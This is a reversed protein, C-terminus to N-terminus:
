ADWLSTRDSTAYMKEIEDKYKKEVAHRKVKMTPGLEGGAISFDRPLLTFKRIKAAKSSSEMNVKEMVSLIADYVGDYKDKHKALDTVSSPRSGQDMCFEWACAELQDTIELTSPDLVARVTILCALHKQKDGVVMCHSVLDPLLSKIREEIPYPAINKGGSTIIVDKIRGKISVFGDEITAMDGSLLWFGRDFTERTKAPDSLYGMFVNRGNAAVEGIGDVPDQLHLRTLCGTASRGVSGLRVSAGGGPSPHFYNATHNPNETMGYIESVVLGISKLFQMTDTSIPAAGSYLGGLCRDLGLKAHIKSIVLKEAISYKIGLGNGGALISDFHDTAVSRSWQLLRGKPGTAQSFTSELQSHMKEFVRPVAVFRTPRVETLYRLLSGRLADKDACHITGGISPMMWIDAIQAVIHSLPLYSIMTEEGFKLNYTQVASACVWTLNDQSLLAGKPDATTGSTYCIVAPQNIAQGELRGRLENEDVSAGLDLLEKWSLVGDDSPLDGYMVITRLDPLKDRYPLIKRLQMEDEVVVINVKSHKLQYLVSEHSNTTYVGTALGGAFVAGITSMFWEPSNNGMIAVSKHPELGLEIFARAVCCIEKFYEEYSWSRSAQVLATNGPVREVTNLICSYCSIPEKSGLGEGMRLQVVGDLNVTAPSTAPLIRDPGVGVRREVRETVPEAGAVFGRRRPVLDPSGIHLFKLMGHRSNVSWVKSIVAM